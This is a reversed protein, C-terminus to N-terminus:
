GRQCIIYGTLWITKLVEATAEAVAVIKVVEVVV